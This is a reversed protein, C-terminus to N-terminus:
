RGAGACLAYMAAAIGGMVASDEYQKQEGLKTLAAALSDARPSVDPCDLLVQRFYSMLGLRVGNADGSSLYKLQRASERWDGKLAARALPRIDTLTLSDVQVADKPPSGAVYKDVAQAILRPARIDSDLLEAVLRDPPLESKIRRLLRTVLAAVGDGNLPLLKHTICRSQLTSLLLNPSTTCLIFVTTDPSDELYKLMLSQAQKTAQHVEDLIYVRYTGGIPRYAAGELEAEIERVGNIKAANIETIDFQHRNRRCERCPNGFKGPEQHSCQYSLALIRALTTKGSGFPGVFLWARGTRGSEMQSRIRDTVSEAGVMEGFSRPRASISLQANM